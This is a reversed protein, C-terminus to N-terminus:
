ISIMHLIEKSEDCDVCHFIIGDPNRWGLTGQWFCYKAVRLQLSRRQTKTYNPPCSLNTLYIIVDNYWDSNKFPDSLLM